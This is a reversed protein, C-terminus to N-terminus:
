KNFLESHSGLRVLVIEEEQPFPQYILLWDPYIHCERHNKYNGLLAHDKLNEALPLANQLSELVVKLDDLNKHPDKHARRLDKKFKNTPVLRYM